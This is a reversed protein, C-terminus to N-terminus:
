TGNQEANRYVTWDSSNLLEFRARHVHVSRRQHDEEKEKGKEESRKGTESNNNCVSSISATKM